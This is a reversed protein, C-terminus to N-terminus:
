APAEPIIEELLPIKEVTECLQTMLTMLCKMQSRVAQIEGDRARLAESLKANAALLTSVLSKIRSSDNPFLAFIQRLSM